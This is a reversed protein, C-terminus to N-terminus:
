RPESFLRVKVMGRHVDRRDKIALVEPNKLAEDMTLQLEDKSVKLRIDDAISEITEAPVLIDIDEKLGIKELSEEILGGGVTLSATGDIDFDIDVAKGVAVNDKDIIHKKSLESWRIEGKPIAAKDLTTKLSNINSELHVRDGIRRIMSADFVPDEDPRMRISELFEEWASGALVFQELKFQGDFTFTMDNIRGVKQGSSDVVDCDRLERCNLSKTIDM